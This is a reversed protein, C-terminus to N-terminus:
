LGYDNLCSYIFFLIFVLISAVLCKGDNEFSPYSVCKSYAYACLILFLMYFVINMYIFLFYVSFPVGLLVQVRMKRPGYGLAMEM